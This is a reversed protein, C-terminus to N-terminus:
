GQPCTATCADFDLTFDDRSYGNVTNTQRHSDGVLPVLRRVM